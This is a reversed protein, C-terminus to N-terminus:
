GIRLLSRHNGVRLERVRGACAGSSRDVGARALGSTVLDVNWGSGGGQFHTINNAAGDNATSSDVLPVFSDAGPGVTGAEGLGYDGVQVVAANAVSGLLLGIAILRATQILTSRAM